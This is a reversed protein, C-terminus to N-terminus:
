PSLEAEIRELRRDTSGKRHFRDVDIQGTVAATILAARYERLRDISARLKEYIPLLRESNQRICEGIRKQEDFPPFPLRIKSIVGNMLKPNIDHRVFFDTARDLAFQFFQLDIERILPKLTGCVNTCNFKGSRRFVTGAKAGDTTWTLYDGDFDYTDIFGMIGDNATQSSYIPYPGPAAAIDEHSIVRGRGLSFIMWVACEQWHSPMSDAWIMASPKKEPHRRGIVLELAEIDSKETLLALLRQKKEILADIRATERDLFAAIRKQTPLDPLPLILDAFNEFRVSKGDRIGTVTTQLAQIFASCKLLYRFFEPRVDRSPSMVTYAPSICGREKAHEIGGEFTRLSIVFDDPEVHLFNETGALAATVRNGTTESYTSQSIVGHSQSATLQADDTRARERRERFLFRARRAPWRGSSPVHTFNSAIM